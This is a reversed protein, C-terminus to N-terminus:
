KPPKLGNAKQAPQSAARLAKKLNEQVIEPFGPLSQRVLRATDPNSSTEVCQRLFFATESPSRRALADLLELLELRLAPPAARVFAQILRFFVPLNEFELGNALPLLLRLGLRQDPLEGALWDEALALLVASNERRMRALGENLVARELRPDRNDHIWGVARALVPEPPQTPIAGLLSAALIRFEVFPQQWFADCLDLAQRPLEDARRSLELLVQRLVPPRVNYAALLPAPEGSKGPRHTRDAYFELLHHLSRVLAAPESFHEAALLAAQQRLRAPQIAPM